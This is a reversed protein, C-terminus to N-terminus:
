ILQRRAIALFPKEGNESEKLESSFSRQVTGATLGWLDLEHSFEGELARSFLSPTPKLTAPSPKSNQTTCILHILHLNSKATGQGPPKRKRLGGRKQTM